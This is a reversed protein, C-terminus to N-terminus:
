MRAGSFIDLSEAERSMQQNDKEKQSLAADPTALLSPSKLINM